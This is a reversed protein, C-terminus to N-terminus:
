LGGREELMTSLWLLFDTATPEPVQDPGDEHWWTVVPPENPSARTDLCILDGAGNNMIPLLHEPLPPDVEMRESETVIVLDLYQPVDSGLGYLGFDAIRAWGFRKLFRRYSGYIPTKLTRSAGEIEDEDVGKGHSKKPFSLIKRAVDDFNM